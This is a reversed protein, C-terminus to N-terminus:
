TQCRVSDEPPNPPASDRAEVLNVLVSDETRMGRVWVLVVSLKAPANDKTGNDSGPM